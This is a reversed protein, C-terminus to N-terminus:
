PEKKVILPIVLGYPPILILPVHLILVYLTYGAMVFLAMVNFLGVLLSVFSTVKLLRTNVKSLDSDFRRYDRTRHSLVYCWLGIDTASSSQLQSECRPKDPVLVSPHFLTDGM